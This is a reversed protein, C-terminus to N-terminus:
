KLQNIIINMEKYYEFVYRHYPHTNTSDQFLIGVKADPFNSLIWNEAKYRTLLSEDDLVIDLYSLKDIYSKKSWWFNGSYHYTHNKNVSIKDLNYCYSNVINSGLTDYVSLYKICLEFNEILFYEMMKRWSKVVDDNGARRVGKTHIYLVYIEYDINECINKIFNITNLEYLNIREDIFLIDFKEDNFYSKDINGLIGLHIKQVINYLGSKKIYEVQENFISEWNELICIHIFIHIPVFNSNNEITDKKLMYKNYYNEEIYSYDDIKIFKEKGWVNWDIYIDDKDYTIIGFQDKNIIRNIELNELNIIAQDTWEPHYIFIKKLINHKENSIYLYSNNTYYITEDTKNKNYISIENKNIIEFYNISDRDEDENNSYITNNKFDLIFEKNINENIIYIKNM